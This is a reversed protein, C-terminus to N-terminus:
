FFCVYEGAGERHEYSYVIELSLFSLPQVSKHKINFHLGKLKKAIRM